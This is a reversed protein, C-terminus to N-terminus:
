DVSEEDLDISEDDEILAKIDEHQYVAQKFTAKNKEFVVNIGHDQADDSMQVGNRNYDIYFYANGGLEENDRVYQENNKPVLYIVTSAYNKIKESNAIKFGREETVYDSMQALGVVALDLEGAIQNKLWNTINGLLQHEAVKGTVQEVKIYDYFVIQINEQIKMRKIEDYIENQSWGTIYTHSIPSEDILKKAQLVNNYSKRYRKWEGTEIFKFSYGTIRALMRVIFTKTNLETDLVTVPVGQVIGLNYVENVVLQSKGVKARASYVVLENKRYTIFESLLPISTEFGIVKEDSQEIQEIVKDTSDKLLRIQHKNAFKSKVKLLHEEVYKNIENRSLSKDSQIYILINELASQIEERYADDIINQAHAKIEEFSKDEGVIKLDELYDIGGSDELRQYKDKNSEFLAYIDEITIVNVGKKYLRKIVTYIDRNLRDTFFEVKLDSLSLLYSPNNIVGGIVLAQSTTSAM